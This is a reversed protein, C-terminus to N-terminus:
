WQSGSQNVQEHVYRPVFIFRCRKFWFVGARARRFTVDVVCARSGFLDVARKGKACRGRAGERCCDICRMNKREGANCRCSRVICEGHLTDGTVECRTARVGRYVQICVYIQEQPGRGCDGDSCVDVSGFFLPVHNLTKGRFNGSKPTYNRQLGRLPPWTDRTCHTYICRLPCM